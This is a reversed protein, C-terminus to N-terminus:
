QVEPKIPPLNWQKTIYLKKVNKRTQNFGFWSFLLDTTCNYREKCLSYERSTIVILTKAPSPFTCLYTQVYVFVASTKDKIILTAIVLKM